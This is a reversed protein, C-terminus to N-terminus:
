TQFLLREYILACPLTAYGEVFRLHLSVPKAASPYYSYLGKILNRCGSDAINFYYNEWKILRIQNQIFLLRGFLLCHFIYIGSDIIRNSIPFKYLLMMRQVWRIAFLPRSCADNDVFIAAFRSVRQTIQYLKRERQIFCYIGISGIISNFIGYLQLFVQVSEQGIDHWIMSAGGFHMSFIVGGILILNKVGFKGTKANM